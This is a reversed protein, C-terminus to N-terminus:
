DNQREKHALKSGVPVKQGLKSELKDLFLCVCNKFQWFRMKLHMQNIIWGPPFGPVKGSQFLFVRKRSYLFSEFEDIEPQMNEDM